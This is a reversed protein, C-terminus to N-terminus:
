RRLQRIALSPPAPVSSSWIEPSSRARAMRVAALHRLEQYVRATMEESVTEHQKIAQLVQTIDDRAENRQM